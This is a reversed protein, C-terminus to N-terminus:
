LHAVVEDDDAKLLSGEIADAHVLREGLFDLIEEAIVDVHTELAFHGTDLLIVKADPVDKKFAEAGAPLFFGDHEGWIALVPPKKERLFAQWSPYADINTRYNYFIEIQRDIMGERAM